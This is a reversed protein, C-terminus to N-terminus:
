DKEIVLTEPNKPYDFFVLEVKRNVLDAWSDAESDICVIGATPLNDLQLEPLLENIIDTLGPNHGVLFLDNFTDEQTTVIELITAPSALYLREERQIFETPYGLSQAVGRATTAARVAPSTLILSPRLKRAMLRAGMRPADREGRENLPRDRDTGTGDWSSKAHRLLSLRKM